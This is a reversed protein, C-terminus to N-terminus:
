KHELMKTWVTLRKARVSGTVAIQRSSLHQLLEPSTFFNAMVIHYNSNGVNPLTNVLYAEVSASLGLASDAYEQLITDKSNYPRFQICYGLPTAM